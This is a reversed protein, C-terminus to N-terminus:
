AAPAALHSELLRRLEGLAATLNADGPPLLGYRIADSLQRVLLGYSVGPASRIATAQETTIAHQALHLVPRKLAVTRGDDLGGRIAVPAISVRLRLSEVQKVPVHLALAVRAPVMGASEALHIARVLDTKDLRRGHSSNLNIADYLLDAESEYTRVDCAIRGEEGLVKRWMRVRHWGDVIRNTGAQVVVPPLKAGAQAALVLARVHTEDVAHRPYVMADEVLLALPLTKTSM